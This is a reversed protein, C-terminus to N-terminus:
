QYSLLCLFENFLHLFIKNTYTKHYQLIILKLFRIYSKHLTQHLVKIIGLIQNLYEFANCPIMIRRWTAILCHDHSRKFNSSEEKSNKKKSQLFYISISVVTVTIIEYVNLLPIYFIWKEDKFM